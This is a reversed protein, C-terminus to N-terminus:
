PAPAPSPTACLRARGHLSLSGSLFLGERSPRFPSTAISRAHDAPRVGGLASLRSWALLRRRRDRDDRQVRMESVGWVALAAGAVFAAKYGTSPSEETEPAPDNPPAFEARLPPLDDSYLDNIARDWWPMLLPQLPSAILEDDAGFDRREAPDIFIGPRSPTRVLPVLAENASFSVRPSSQAIPQVVPAPVAPAPGFDVVAIAPHTPTKQLVTSVPAVAAAFIQSATVVFSTSPASTNLAVTPSINVVDRTSLTTFAEAVVVHPKNITNSTTPNFTSLASIISSAIPSGLGTVQDYGKAAKAVFNQGSTIDHFSTAYTSATGSSGYLTYLLDLTQTSSLSGLAGRNQDADAIIGAWIPAGASTGGVTQWGTAGDGAVSDYVALGTAPNADASVDPTSRGTAFKAGLTTSQYAPSPEYLSTGGTSGSYGSFSSGSANWATESDNAVNLTTGGVSVVYPSVSPWEAGAAGGDDGSASIFTVGAKNFYVDDASEGVFESGGWSMSVVNGHGEAIKVAALLDSTSASNAEVLVISAGPAMAHAWEVDLSIELSWGADTQPLQTGGNQNLVTFSPPAAIGYHSDFTALDSAINPDNYADVIAIVQGKGTEAGTISYASALQSPSTAGSPM